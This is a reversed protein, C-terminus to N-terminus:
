EKTREKLVAMDKDLCNVKDSIRDIRAELKVNYAGVIKIAGETKSVIWRKIGFFIGIATSLVIMADLLNLINGFYEVLVM